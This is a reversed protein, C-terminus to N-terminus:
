YTWWAGCGSTNFCFTHGNELGASIRLAKRADAATLKGDYDTDCMLFFEKAESRDEPATDLGASYRLIKRADAVTPTFTEEFESDNVAFTGYQQFALMVFATNENEIIDSIMSTKGYVSVVACPTTSGCYLVDINESLGEALQKNKEDSIDDNYNFIVTLYWLGDNNLIEEVLQYSAKSIGDASVYMRNWSDGSESCSVWKEYYENYETYQEEFYEDAFISYYENEIFCHEGLGSVSLHSGYGCNVTTEESAQVTISFLFILVLLASIRKM